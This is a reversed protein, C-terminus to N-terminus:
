SWLTFSMRMIYYSMCVLVRPSSNRYFAFLLYTESLCYVHLMVQWEDIVALSREASLELEALTLGTLKHIVTAYVMQIVEPKLGKKVLDEESVPYGWTQIVAAIEHLPVPPYSFIAAM